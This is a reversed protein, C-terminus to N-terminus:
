HATQEVTGGVYSEAEAILSDIKARLEEDMFSSGTQTHDARERIRKTSYGMTRGCKFRKTFSITVEKADDDYGISIGKVEVTEMWKPPLEMLEQVNDKLADVANRFSPAPAGTNHHKTAITGGEKTEVSEVHAGDQLLKIQSIRM